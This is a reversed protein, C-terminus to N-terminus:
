INPNDIMRLNGDELEGDFAFNCSPVLSRIDFEVLDPRTDPGGLGADTFDWEVSAPVTSGLQTKCFGEGSGEHTGGDNPSPGNTDCAAEDMTALHFSERGPPDPQPNFWNIELEAGPNTATCPLTMGLTVREDPNGIASGGGILKDVPVAGAPMGLVLAVVVVAVWITVRRRDM